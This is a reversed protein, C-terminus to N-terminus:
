SAFDYNGGVSYWEHISWVGLEEELYTKSPGPPAHLWNWKAEPLKFIWGGTAPGPRRLLKTWALIRDAPVGLFAKEGPRWNNLRGRGQQWAESDVGTLDRCDVAILYHFEYSTDATDTTREPFATAGVLSRSICTGTENFVDRDSNWFFVRDQLAVPTETINMGRVRLLAASNHALPSCGDVTFRDKDDRTATKGGEVRFGITFDRWADPIRQRLTVDPNQRAAPQLSSPLPNQTGSTDGGGEIMNQAVTDPVVGECIRRWIKRCFETQQANDYTNFTRIPLERLKYCADPDGGSENVLKKRHLAVLTTILRQKTLPHIPGGATRLADAFIQVASQISGSDKPANVDVLNLMVGDLPNAKPKVFKFAGPAPPAGGTHSM